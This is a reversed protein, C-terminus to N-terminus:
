GNAGTKDLAFVGKAFGEKDSQGGSIASTASRWGWPWAYAAPPLASAGTPGDGSLGSDKGHRVRAREARFGKRAVDGARKARFGKRAVDGASDKGCEANM